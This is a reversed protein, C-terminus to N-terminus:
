VAGVLPWVANPTKAAFLARSQPGPSSRCKGWQFHPWDKQGDSFTTRWDGGWALGHSKMIRVVNTQWMTPISRGWLDWGHQSSVIDVALGYGHWSAELTRAHSAGHDSYWVQLEPSRCSEHVLADWSAENCEQLAASVAFDFLPALCNLDSEVVPQHNVFNAM